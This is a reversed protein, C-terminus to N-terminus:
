SAATQGESVYLLCSCSPCFVAQRMMLESMKQTTLKTYCQGCTQMDTEALADEGRSEVLRRYESGVEGTLKSENAKLDAVVSELQEQLSASEVAIRAKVKETEQKAGQLNSEATVVAAELVDLRELMELIEDSLVSNAQEDAAIQDKLLQFEKNSAATNLKSKFDEIKAEREGLQLQKDDAAMKTKTRNEKAEELESVFQKEANEAVRIQRPGKEIRETLDTKQKLIRHITKLLSYDLKM